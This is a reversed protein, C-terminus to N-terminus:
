LSLVMDVFKDMSEKSFNSDFIYKKDNVFMIITPYSDIDYQNAQEKEKECDVLTFQIDPRTARYKGWEVLTEKCHPCWITYFLKCEYKKEKLIYEQNPVFVKPDKKVFNLYLIYGVLIMVLLGIILWIIQIFEMKNFYGIMLILILGIMFIGGLVLYIFEM